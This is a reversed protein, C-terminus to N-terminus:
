LSLCGLSGCQCGNGGFPFVRCLLSGELIRGLACCCNMWSTKVSGLVADFSRCHREQHDEIRKPSHGTSERTSLPVTQFVTTGNCSKVFHDSCVRANDSEAGGSRLRLNVLWKKRRKGTLKKCQGRRHVVVEPGSSRWDCLM